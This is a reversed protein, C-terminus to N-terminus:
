SAKRSTSPQSILRDAIMQSALGDGYITSRTKRPSAIAAAGQRVITDVHTGALTALERTVAEHRETKDRMIVTPIGLTVAEECLGGSDTLVASCRALLHVAEIYSLPDTLRINPARTNDRVLDRVAPNPHVPWHFENRPHLAALTTVAECIRRLGDGLSERRHATVLVTGDPASDPVTSLLADIGTNGVIRIREMPVGERRLCHQADATPAFHWDTALTVIRRNFEEPRPSDIDHTRLGAEVHAVPVRRDFAAIAGAAVSNTDGQVIAIDPATRDIVNGIATISEALSECCLMYTPCIGFGDLVETVMEHHQGTCCVITAIRRREFELILPALKIAEPRTGIVILPKM